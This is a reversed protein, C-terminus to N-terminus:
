LSVYIQELDNIKNKILWEAWFTAPYAYNYEGWENRFGQQVRDLIKHFGKETIGGTMEITWDTLDKIRRMVIRDIEDASAEWRGPIDFIDPLLTSQAQSLPPSSSFFWLQKESIELILNNIGPRYYSHYIDPLTRIQDDTLPDRDEKIKSNCIECLPVLNIPHVSLAPYKSRPFIHDLTTLIGTSTVEMWTGDCVPCVRLKNNANEFEWYIKQSWLDFNLGMVGIPIRRM